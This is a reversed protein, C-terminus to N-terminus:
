PLVRSVRITIPNNNNNSTAVDRLWFHAMGGGHSMYVSGGTFATQCEAPSAFGTGQLLQGNGMPMVAEDGSFTCTVDARWCSGPCDLYSGRVYAVRYNGPPLDLPVGVSSDTGANQIGRVMVVQGQNTAKETRALPSMTTVGLLALASALGVKVARAHACPPRQSANPKNMAIFRLGGANRGRHRLGDVPAAGSRLVEWADSTGSPPLLLRRRKARLCRAVRLAREDPSM